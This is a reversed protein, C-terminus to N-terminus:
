VVEMKEVLLERGSLLSYEFGGCYSCLLKKDEHLNATFEKGCLRCGFVVPVKTVVIHAGEAITDKSIYDFYRQIWDQELNRMEGVTLYIAQIRKAKKQQATNLVLRLISKTVALEHM